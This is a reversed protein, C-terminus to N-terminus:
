IARPWPIEIVRKTGQKSWVLRGAHKVDQKSTTNGIYANSLLICAPMPKNEDSSSSSRGSRDLSLSTSVSKNGPSTSMLKFTRHKQESHNERDKVGVQQRTSLSRWARLCARRDLLKRKRNTYALLIPVGTTLVQVLMREKKSTYKHLIQMQTQAHRRQFFQQRNRRARRWYLAENAHWPAHQNNHM